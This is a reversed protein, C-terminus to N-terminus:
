GARGQLTATMPEDLQDITLVVTEGVFRATIRYARIDGISNHEVVFTSADSWTGMDGLRIGNSGASFRYLGDLGIPRPTADTAIKLTMTAEGQGTFDLKLWEIGYPNADFRYTRGNIAAATAPLVAAPLPEPPAAAAVVAAALQAEGVSDAAIANAPDRLARAVADVVPGPDIGGGTTIVILELAPAIVIRQGARGSAMFYRIPANKPGIWFGAGYDEYRDSTVADSTARRLWDAPVVQKGDYTGGHLWLEGLKSMDEPTLHLDGWGRTVGQPDLDWVADTIGLPGFLKQQAYATATMGTAQQLIASLLHMGPSCYDFHTGPEHASPLNLAFQVFDASAQMQSLTVEDPAGVCALGSLNRSLNEVTIREKRGDINAISRGPFFSLMPADLKLKGDAAAIGILSTMVSKTVSAIDHLGGDFPYFNADLVVADKRIIRLSHIPEGSARASVVVKALAAPDFGRSEPTATPLEGATSSVALLILVLGTITMRVDSGERPLEM